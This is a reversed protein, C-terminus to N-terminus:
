ITINRMSEWWRVPPPAWVGDVISFSQWKMLMERILAWVLNFQQPFILWPKIIFSCVRTIPLSQHTYTIDGMHQSIFHVFALIIFAQWDEKSLLENEYRLKGKSNMDEQCTWWNSLHMFAPLSIRYNFQLFVVVSEISNDIWKKLFKWVYLFSYYANM